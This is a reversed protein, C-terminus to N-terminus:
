DNEKYRIFDLECDRVQQALVYRKLKYSYFIYIDKTHEKVFEVGFSSCEFDSSILYFNYFDCALVELNLVDSHFIYIGKKYYRNIYNIDYDSLGCLYYQGFEVKLEGKENLVSEGTLQNKFLDPDIKVINECYLLGATAPDSEGNISDLIDYLTTTM